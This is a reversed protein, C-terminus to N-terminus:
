DVEPAPAVRSDISNNLSALHRAIGNYEELLTDYRNRESVIHQYDASLSEQRGILETRAQNFEAQSSFGGQQDARRNFQRVDEELLDAARQYDASLSNINGALQDLQDALEQAQESYSIFVDQYQNYMAVIAQRNAFYRSYHEELAPDINAIETGIISHLENHKEDSDAFDYADIRKTFREDARLSLAAQNLLNNVDRREKTSLRDYAAHLMEHAATVDEIGPLEENNIGYIYIQRSVYCGLVAATKEVKGCAENFKEASELQPSSAYFLMQGRSTMTTSSVLQQVESSAQFQEARLWDTIYEHNILGWGAVLFLLAGFWLTASNASRPQKM